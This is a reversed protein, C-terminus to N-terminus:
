VSPANSRHVFAHFEVDDMSGGPLETRKGDARMGDLFIVLQRRMLSAELETPDGVMGGLSFMILGLDAGTVGGRLTGEEQARAILGQLTSSFAGAPRYTPDIDYMRRMVTRLGPQSALAFVAAELLEVITDWASASDGAPSLSDGLMVVGRDYLARILDEHTPFHRYATGIGLGTQLALERVTLDADREALLEYGAVILRERNAVADKRKVM